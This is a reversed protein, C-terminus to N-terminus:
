RTPLNTLTYLMTEMHSQNDFAIKIYESWRSITPTSIGSSELSLFTHLVDTLYIMLEM